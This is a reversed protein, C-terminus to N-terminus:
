YPEILESTKDKIMAPKGEAREAVKAAIDSAAAAPIDFKKQIQVAWIQSYREIDDQHDQTEMSLVPAKALVKELVGTRQSIILLRIAGPNEKNIAAVLATFWATIRKEEGVECEDLGDLLLYVNSCSRLSTELLEKLLTPSELTVESSSACREHVFSLLNENQQILQLLLGRLVATFSNKQIDSYKCYFFAVTVSDLKQAEEIIM